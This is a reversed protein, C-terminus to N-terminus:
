GRGSGNGSEIWLILSKCPWCVMRNGKGVTGIEEKSKKSGLNWAM